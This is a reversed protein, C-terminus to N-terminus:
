LDLQTKLDSNALYNATFYRCFLHQHTKSLHSLLENFLKILANYNAANVNVTCPKCVVVM